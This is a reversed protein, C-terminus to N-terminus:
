KEIKQDRWRQLIETLLQKFSCDSNQEDHKLIVDLVADAKRLTEEITM